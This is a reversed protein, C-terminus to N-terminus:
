KLDYLSGLALLGYFTYEVDTQDDFLTASFGGCELAHMAVFDRASYRPKLGISNLTFLATATSLLDATPAAANARFGGQEEQIDRLYAEAKHDRRLCHIAAATANTSSRGGIINAFGGDSTRYEQLNITPRNGVITDQQLNRILFQSYPSGPDSHPYSMRDEPLLSSNRSLPNLLLRSKILAGRHVLDLDQYQFESLFERVQRTNVKLRFIRALTLGFMTYYLDARNANKDRWGGDLYEAAVFDAVLAKAAPSLRARAANLRAIIKLSIVM